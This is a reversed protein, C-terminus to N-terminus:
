GKRGANSSTPTSRLTVASMQVEAPPPPLKYRPKRRFVMRALGELLIDAAVTRERIEEAIEGAISTTQGTILQQVGPMEAMYDVAEDVTGTLATQALMRSHTEEQRGIEIWHDLRQQGISVMKRYRKRVPSLLRSSAIPRIIPSTRRRVGRGVKVAKGVGSKVIVQADFLMGTVAYRLLQDSEPETAVPQEASLQAPPQSSKTKQKAKALDIQEEWKRLRERLEEIGIDVAGVVLRTLSRLEDDQSSDPPTTVTTSGTKPLNPDASM